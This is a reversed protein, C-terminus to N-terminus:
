NSINQEAVQMAEPSVGEPAMIEQERTPIGTGDGMMQEAVRMAQESPQVQSLKEQEQQAQQEQAQAQQAQQEKIQQVQELVADVTPTEKPTNMIETIGQSIMDQPIGLGTTSSVFLQILNAKEESGLAKLERYKAILEDKNAPDFINVLDLEDILKLDSKYQNQMQYIEMIKEKERDKSYPTKKNMNISFCYEIDDINEIKVKPFEYEGKENKKGRLTIEEEKYIIKTYEVLVEVIDKVFEKINKHVKAEIITSREVAMKAGGATNAATGINGEYQNTVGAIARMTAIYDNKIAIMKDDVEPPIIPKIAESIPGEIHYVVGPAGASKAVAKPNLGCGKKVGLAPNAYAIATNATASEIANAAKLLNILDDMLALGYASDKANRWRIQVIPFCPIAIPRQEVQFGSILVTKLINGKEYDKEYFTLKTLVKGDQETTYDNELYIEGRDQPSMMEKIEDETPLVEKYKSYAKKRTIREAVIIYDADKFRRAKPDIYMSACDLTYAELRGKKLNGKGGSIKKDTYLIHIYSERTVAMDEICTDILDDLGLRDWEDMIVDQLNKVRDIDEVALPQLEGRYDNTILSAVRLDINMSAHPTNMQIVWPRNTKNQTLLHQNGQYCATNEIYADHRTNQFNKAENFMEIYKKSVETAKVPKIEEKKM